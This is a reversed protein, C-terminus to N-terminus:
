RAGHCANALWGPSPSALWRSAADGYTANSICRQLDDEVVWETRDWTIAVASFRMRLEIRDDVRPAVDKGSMQSFEGVETVIKLLDGQVFM